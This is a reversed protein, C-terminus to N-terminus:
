AWPYMAWPVMCLYTTAGARSLFGLALFGWRVGTKFVLSIGAVLLEFVDFSKREDGSKGDDAM